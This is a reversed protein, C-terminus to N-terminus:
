NIYKRKPDSPKIVRKPRERGKKIRHLNGKKDLEIDYSDDSFMSLVILKSLGELSKKLGQLEKVIEAEEM